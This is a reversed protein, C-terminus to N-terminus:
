MTNKLWTMMRIIELPEFLTIVLGITFFSIPAAFKTKGNEKKAFALLSFLVGIFLGLLGALFLPESSDKTGVNVILFALGALLFLLSLRSFRKM